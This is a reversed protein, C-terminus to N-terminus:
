ESSPILTVGKGGMQEFLAQAQPMNLAQEAMGTGGRGCAICTQGVDGFLISRGGDVAQDIM